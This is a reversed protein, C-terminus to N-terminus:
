THIRQEARCRHHSGFNLLNRHLIQTTRGFTRQSPHKRSLLVRVCRMHQTQTLHSNAARSQMSTAFWLQALESASDSNDPRLYAPIRTQSQTVGACMAHTTNTDLTFESSQEARCRHQSGFNLLNRHLIQTTRGFTRQSPHKRSLLVRVCQLHQTQAFHSNAARSQMPSAFWLQALESASDSNDPRLYAPIPTQSQSVGACM